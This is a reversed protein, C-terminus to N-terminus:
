GDDDGGVAVHAIDAGRHVAAREVEQGLRDIEVIEFCGDVLGDAMDLHQALRAPALGLGLARM